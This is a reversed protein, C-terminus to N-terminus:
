KFKGLFSGMIAKAQDVTMKLHEALKEKGAIYFM